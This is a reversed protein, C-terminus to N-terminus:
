RDWSDTSDKIMQGLMPFRLEGYNLAYRLKGGRYVWTTPIWSVPMGLLKTMQEGRKRSTNPHILVQVNPQPGVGNAALLARGDDANWVTVFVFNVDPNATIFGSWGGNALEARCNPCWAAWLHVVTVKDSRTLESLRAEFAEPAPDAARAAPAVMLMLAVALFTWPRPFM